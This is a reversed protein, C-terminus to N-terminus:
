LKVVEGLGEGRGGARGPADDVDGMKGKVCGLLDCEDSGGAGAFGGEEVEDGSDDAGVGAGDDEMLGIEGGEGFGAEVSEAGSVDAVDELGEIQELGEGSELVDFEGQGKAGTVIAGPGDIQEGVHAQGVMEVMQGTLEGDTLLLADGDGSGQGITGPKDQGVFGGAIEIRGGSLGRQGENAGGAALM